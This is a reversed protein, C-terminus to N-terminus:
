REKNFPKDKTKEIKNVAVILKVSGTIYAIMAMKRTEKLSAEFEDDKASVVLITCDAQAVGLVVKLRWKKKFVYM